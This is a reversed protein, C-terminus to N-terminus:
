IIVDESSRFRQLDNFASINFYFYERNHGDRIGAEMHMCESVPSQSLVETCMHSLGKALTRHSTVLM